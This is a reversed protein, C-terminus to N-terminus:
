VLGGDIFPRFYAPSGGRVEDPQVDDRTALRVSALGSSKAVPFLGLRGAFHIIEGHDTTAKKAMAGSYCLGVALLLSHDRRDARALAERRLHGERSASTRRLAYM